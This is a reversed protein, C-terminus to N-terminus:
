LERIKIRNQLLLKHLLNKGKSKLDNGFVELGYSDLLNFLSNLNNSKIQAERSKDFISYIYYIVVKSSYLDYNDFIAKFYSYDQRNLSHGYFVIRKLRNDAPLFDIINRDKNSLLFHMNMKKYTKTTFIKYDVNSETREDSDITSMSLLDTGIIIGPKQSNHITGHVNESYIKERVLTRNFGALVIYGVNQFPDTYNFNLVSLGMSEITHDQDDVIEVINKILTGSNTQYSASEQSVINRNSLDNQLYDSFNLEFDTIFKSFLNSLHEMGIKEKAVILKEPANIIHVFLYSFIHITTYFDNTDASYKAFTLKEKRGTNKKLIYLHLLELISKQNDRGNVIKLISNEVDNWNEYGSVQCILLYFFVNTNELTLSSLQKNAFTLDSNENIKSISRAMKLLKPYKDDIYNSFSSKLGCNLDFGNGIVLLTDSNNM